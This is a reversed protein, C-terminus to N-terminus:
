GPAGARAAAATEAAQQAEERTAAYSEVTGIADVLTWKYGRTFGAADPDQHDVDTARRSVTINPQTM